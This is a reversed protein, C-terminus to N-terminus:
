IGRCECALRSSGALNGMNHCWRLGTVQKRGVGHGLVRVRAACAHAQLGSVLLAQTCPVTVPVGPLLRGQPSVTQLAQAGM